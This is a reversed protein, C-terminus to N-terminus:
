YGVIGALLEASPPEIGGMEVQLLRALLRISLSRPTPELGVQGVLRQGAKRRRRLRASADM